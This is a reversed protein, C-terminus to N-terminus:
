LQCPSLQHETWAIYPQTGREAPLVRVGSELHLSQVTACFKPFQPERISSCVADLLPRSARDLRMTLHM